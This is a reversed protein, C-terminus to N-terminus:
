RRLISSLEQETRGLSALRKASEREIPAILGAKVLATKKALGTVRRAEAPLDEDTNLTTRMNHAMVVSIAFYP